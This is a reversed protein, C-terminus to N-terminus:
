LKNGCIITLYFEKFFYKGTKVLEKLIKGIYFEAEWLTKCTDSIGCM